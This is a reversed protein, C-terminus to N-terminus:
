RGGDADTIDEESEDLVAEGDEPLADPNMKSDSKGGDANTGTGAGASSFLCGFPNFEYKPKKKEEENMERFAQITEELSLSVKMNKQQEELMDVLERLMRNEEYLDRILLQLEEKNM